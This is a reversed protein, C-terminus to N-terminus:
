RLQFSVMLHLSWLISTLHLKQIKILNNQRNWYYANQYFLEPNCDNENDKLFKNFLICKFTAPGSFAPKCFFLSLNAENRMNGM